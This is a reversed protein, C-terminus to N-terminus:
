ISDIKWAGDEKVTSFYYTEGDISVQYIIENSYSKFVTANTMLGALKKTGDGSVDFGSGYREKAEKSLCAEFGDRDGMGLAASAATITTYSKQIEGTSVGPDNTYYNSYSSTSGSGPVPTPTPTSQCCSLCGSAMICFCLPIIILMKKSFLM